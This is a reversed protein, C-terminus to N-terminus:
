AAPPPSCRTMVFGNDLWIERYGARWQALM